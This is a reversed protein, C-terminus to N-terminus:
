LVDVLREASRKALAMITMQPNVGVCSPFTSADAVWLNVTSHHRGWPDVASRAPDAGARVTGMPHFASLRMREPRVGNERLDEIEASSTISDMGAIGPYVKGAGAALLVEAATAVGISFRRADSENMRYTSFVDGGPLRHIRGKSTDSVYFGLTALKGFQALEDMAEAGIGPLSGAGVGPVATTAEFMLEHSDFLTDIYYSQMTGQWYRAPDPMVGSVASAPHVRLNRTTQGSPDAVGSRELLAPTHVAGACVVVQGARVRMQGRRHVPDFITAVVGTARGDEITVREVRCRSYIRAGAAVARPLYSVNM